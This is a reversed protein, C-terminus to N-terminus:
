PNLDINFVMAVQPEIGTDRTTCFLVVGDVFLTGCALTQVVAEQVVVMKLFQLDATDVVEREPRHEYADTDM